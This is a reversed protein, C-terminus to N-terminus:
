SRFLETVVVENAEASFTTKIGAVALLVCTFTLTMQSYPLPPVNKGYNALFSTSSSRRKKEANGSFHILSKDLKFHLVRLLYTVQSSRALHAQQKNNWIVRTNV